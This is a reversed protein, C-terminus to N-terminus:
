LSNNRLRVVFYCFRVGVRTSVQSFARLFSLQKGGAREIECRSHSSFSFRLNRMVMDEVGVLCFVSLSDITINMLFFSHTRLPAKSANPVPLTPMSVSSIGVQKFSRWRVSRAVKLALAQRKTQRRKQTWISTILRAAHPTRRYFCWWLTTSIFDGGYPLRSLLVVLTTSSHVVTHAYQVFFSSM